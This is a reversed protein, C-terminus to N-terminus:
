LEDTVGPGLHKGTRAIRFVLCGALPWVVFNMAIVLLEKWWTDMPFGFAIEILLCAPLNPYLGGYPVLLLCASAWTAVALGTALGDRATGQFGRQLCRALWLAFITPLATCVVVFILVAAPRGGYTIVLDLLKDSLMTM